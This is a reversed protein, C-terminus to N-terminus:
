DPASCPHWSIVPFLTQSLSCSDNTSGFMVPMDVGLRTAMPITRTTHIWKNLVIIRTIAKVSDDAEIHFSYNVIRCDLCAWVQAGVGVRDGEKITKVKPGVKLVKGVIEHGAVVPLDPDGWGANITHLDSACVGCHTIEIDIDFDEFRKPKYSIRKFDSWNKTSHVAYGEFTEPYGM